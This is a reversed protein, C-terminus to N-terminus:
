SVTPNRKSRFCSRFNSILARVLHISRKAISLGWHHQKFGFHCFSSNRNRVGSLAWFVHSFRDLSSLIGIHINFILFNYLLYQAEGCMILHNQTSHEIKNIHYWLLSNRERRKIYDNPQDRCVSFNDMGETTNVHSKWLWYLYTITLEM